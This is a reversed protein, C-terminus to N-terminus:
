HSATGTTAASRSDHLMERTIVVAEAQTKHGFM